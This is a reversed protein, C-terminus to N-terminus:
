SPPPLDLGELAALSRSASLGGAQQQAQLHDRLFAAEGPQDVDYWVPLLALRHGAAVALTQKLVMGTGWEIDDSFLAPIRASLGILYYGGDTSPGVVIEHTRLLDFAQDLFDVPLSPSDTGIVVTSQSGAAFADDFLGSLRAGLSGDVQPLYDFDGVSNLLRPLGDAAGEGTYVVVKTTASCTALTAATDQLFATYLNAAQEPSLVSQLRTKVKGAHPQRAFMAAWQTM